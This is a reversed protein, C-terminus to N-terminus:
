DQTVWRRMRPAGLVALELGLRVVMLPGGEVHVDREFFTWASLAIVGVNLALLVCWAGYSGRWIRRLLYYDLAMWPLAAGLGGVVSYDTISFALVELAVIAAILGVPRSAARPAIRGDAAVSM